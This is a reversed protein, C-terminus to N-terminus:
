GMRIGVFCYLFALAQQLCSAVRWEQRCFPVHLFRKSKLAIFSFSAFNSLSVLMSEEVSSRKQRVPYPALSVFKLLFSVAGVGASGTGEFSIELLYTSIWQIPPRSSLTSSTGRVRTTIPSARPLAPSGSLKHASAPHPQPPPCRRQIM